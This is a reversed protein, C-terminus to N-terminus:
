PNNTSTAVPMETMVEHLFTAGTTYWTGTSRRGWPMRFHWVSSSFATSGVVDDREQTSKLTSNVQLVSEGLLTAVSRKDTQTKGDRPM